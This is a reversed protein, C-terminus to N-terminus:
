LRYPANQNIPAVSALRKGTGDLLQNARLDLHCLAAFQMGKRHHRLSPDDFAGKGPQFLAAPKPFVALPQEVGAQLEDM